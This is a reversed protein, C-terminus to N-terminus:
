IPIIEGQLTRKKSAVQCIYVMSNKGPRKESLIVIKQLAHYRPRYEDM